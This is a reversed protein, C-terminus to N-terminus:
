EHRGTCAKRGPGACSYVRARFSRRRVATRSSCPSNRHEVPILQFVVGEPMRELRGEEGVRVHRLGGLLDIMGDTAERDFRGCPHEVEAAADAAM